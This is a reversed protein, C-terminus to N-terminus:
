LWLMSMPAWSCTPTKSYSPPVRVGDEIADAVLRGRVSANRFAFMDM